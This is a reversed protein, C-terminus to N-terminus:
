VNEGGSRTLIALGPQLLDALSIMGVVKNPNSREVVPM